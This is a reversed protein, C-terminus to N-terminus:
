TAAIVRGTRVGRHMATPRQTQTAKADSAPAWFGGAALGAAAGGAGAAFGAPAGAPTGAEAGAGEGLFGSTTEGSTFASPWTIKRRKAGLARAAVTVPMRCM